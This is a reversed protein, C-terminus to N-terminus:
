ASTGLTVTVLAQTEGRTFIASGHTRPLVGIESSIPRIESFGRGDVRRRRALIERRCLKQLVDEYIRKALARQAADEPPIGEQLIQLVRGMAKYSEIKGRISLAELLPGSISAEIKAYLEPPFEKTRVQRKARGLARAMEEQLEVIKVIERHGF